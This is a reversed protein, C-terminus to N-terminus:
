STKRNGNYDYSVSHPLGCANWIIDFCPKLIIETKIEYNEIILEPLLLIDRDIPHYGGLSYAEMNPFVGSYGKVGIFTIFILIPLEVGLKKLGNIYVTLAEILENELFTIPLKKDKSKESYVGEIIGNRFMQVYSYSENHISYNIFGDFSFTDNWGNCNIPPLNLNFDHNNYFYSQGPNFANVPMLHLAIKYCNNLSNNSTLTSIITEDSFIKSIRDERFQKIKHTITELLNFAVRLEGVDMPYKGNTSRSYFKDHGNFIVRHPSNWSKPIRIILIIKSNSLMIPTIPKIGIIRPQIGTLIMNDLRRIEADINKINLGELNKPLGTQRDEIIGYILDGGSANAFSSVQALFKKKQDESNDPLAQKYEITKKEAVKNNILDQLDTETIENLEKNILLM